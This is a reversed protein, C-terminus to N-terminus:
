KKLLLKKDKTLLIMYQILEKIMKKLKSKEEKSYSDYIPKIKRINKVLNKPFDYITANGDFLRFLAETLLRKDENPTDNIWGMFRTLFKKSSKSIDDKYKFHGKHDLQWYFPDHGGLLIGNSEVIKCNEIDNHYLGGVFNNYTRYKILKKNIKNFSEYQTIGERFGPGDFSYSNILRDQYKKDLNLTVYFSLFGGKSHGGLYFNNTPYKNLEELAYELAQHQSLITAEYSILFDENWGVFTTDTGRYSIYIDGNPLVFTLAFFQNIDESSFRRQTDVIIIDRFRPSLMMNLLMKKNHKHDVSGFFVDDTLRNPNISGIRIKSFGEIFLKDINIYAFESLILSDIDNFKRRDFSYNGFKEIYKNINM